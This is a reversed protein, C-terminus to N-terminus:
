IVFLLLLLTSSLISYVLRTKMLASVHLILSSGFTVAGAFLAILVPYMWDLGRFQLSSQLEYQWERFGIFLQPVLVVLLTLLYIPVYRKFQVDRESAQHGLMAIIALPVGGLFMSYLVSKGDPVAQMETYLIACLLCAIIVAFTGLLTRGLSAYRDQILEIAYTM